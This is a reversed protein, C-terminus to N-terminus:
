LLNSCLSKVRAYFRFSFLLRRLRGDEFSANLGDPHQFVIAMQKQLDGSNVSAKWDSLGLNLDWTWAGTARHGQALTKVGRDGNEWVAFLFFLGKRVAELIAHPSM